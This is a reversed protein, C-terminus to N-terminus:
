DEKIAIKMLLWTGATSWMLVIQNAGQNIGWRLAQCHPAPTLFPSLIFGILSTSTCWYVYLHASLYHILIWLLYIAAIKGIEKIYSYKPKKQEQIQEQEMITPKFLVYYVKKM